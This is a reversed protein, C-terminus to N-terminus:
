YLHYSFLIGPHQKDAAQQQPLASNAPVWDITLGTSADGHVSSGSCRVDCGSITFDVRKVSSVLEVV